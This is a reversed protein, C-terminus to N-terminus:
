SDSFIPQNIVYASNIIRIAFLYKIVWFKKSVYNNQPVTLRTIVTHHIKRSGQLCSYFKFYLKFQFQM